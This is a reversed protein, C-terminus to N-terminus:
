TPDVPMGPGNGGAAYERVWLRVIPSPALPRRDKETKRRGHVPEQAVELWFSTTIIDARLAM